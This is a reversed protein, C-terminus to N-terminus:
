QKLYANLREVAFADFGQLAESAIAQEKGKYEVVPMYFCAHEVVPSTNPKSPDLFPYACGMSLVQLRVVKLTQGVTAAECMEWDINRKDLEAAMPLNGMRTFHEVEMAPTVFAAQQAPEAPGPCLSAARIVKFEGSGQLQAPFRKKQHEFGPYTSAFAETPLLEAAARPKPLDPTAAMAVPVLAATFLAILTNRTFTANM